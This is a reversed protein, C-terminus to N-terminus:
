ARRQRGAALGDFEYGFLELDQQFHRAVLERTAPTYYTRYDRHSSVNAHPLTVQVGLRACVRAFDENLREFYGVFDVILKGSADTVYEHQFMKGRRIEWDLYEEFGKLRKVFRHRHHGESRLLYTYRSVLRDWPNRVFAFKFAADYVAPPLCRKVARAAIHEPFEVARYLCGLRNVTGLWVLRRRLRSTSKPHAYRLLAREISSGAAKDVHIFIFSREYSFLM